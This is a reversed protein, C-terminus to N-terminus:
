NNKIYNFLLIGYTCSKKNSGNKLPTFDKELFFDLEYIYNSNCKMDFSADPIIAQIKDKMGDYSVTKTKGESFAKNILNEYKEQFKEIVFKFYDKYEIFLCSGHKNYKDKWFAENTSKNELNPWYKKMNQFLESKENFEINAASNCSGFLNGNKIPWLGHILMKNEYDHNIPIRSSNPKWYGNYWKVAMVYSDFTQKTQFLNFSFTYILLSILIIVRM